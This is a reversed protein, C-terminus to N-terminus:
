PQGPPELAILEQGLIARGCGDLAPLLGGEHFSQVWITARSKFVDEVRVATSKTTLRRLQTEMENAGLHCCALFTGRASTELCELVSIEYQNNRTGLRVSMRLRIGSDLDEEGEAAPFLRLCDDWRKDSDNAPFKLQSLWDLLESRAKELNM